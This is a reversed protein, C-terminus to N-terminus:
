EDEEKRQAIMQAVDGRKRREVILMGTTLVVAGLVAMWTIRDGLVAAAVLMTFFPQCFILTTARVTGLKGLCWNWLVYCLLSAVLSLYVLNGWVAPRSLLDWSTDLPRVLLFYPVITLLGYGFIKRTLFRVDYRGSVSKMILSYVSWSVAAGFALLDGTPNLKLVIRGNFIILAMGAFALAAGAAQSLRLREDRYCLSALLATLLPTSCVILAVNSATSYQLATNEALFYLSGGSLGLLAALAEDKLSDAWLRKPSIFWICAYALVFRYFFVSAPAMGQEVLIKSSIFTEAWVAVVAVALAWIWPLRRASTTPSAAPRAPGTSDVIKAPSKDTM